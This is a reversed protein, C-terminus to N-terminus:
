KLDDADRTCVQPESIQREEVAVLFTRGDPNTQVANPEILPDGEKWLPPINNNSQSNNPKSNPQPPTNGSESPNVEASVMFPDDDSFNYPSEPVGGGIYVLETRQPRNPDLCSGEFLERYLEFNIERAAVVVDDEANSEPSNVTVTGDIGLESDATIDNNPTLSPRAELGVITDATIEINGGRGQFANATIDSNNLGLITDSNITINGGDGAGGATASILSNDLLSLRDANININGGQGSATAATIGSNNDINIESANISLEGANGTGQNDVRIAGENQISLQNTNLSISGSEGEPFPPLDFLELLSPNTIVSSATIQSSNLLSNDVSGVAKGSVQIFDTANIDINGAAGLGSTTANVRGGGELKLQTTKIAIDGGKGFVTTTGILSRLFSNSSLDLLFSGSLEVSNSFDANINGGNGKQFNQSIILGGEKLFLNRGTLSINGSNGSAMTISSISSSTPTNEIPPTGIVTISDNVDININGSNGSNYATTNILSFDRLNVQEASIIIDSGEGARFSQSLIGPKVVSFDNFSSPSTVGILNVSNSMDININGSPRDGFNSILILSNESLFIDKGRVDIKGGPSGSTDLLSRNNLVIDQFETNESYDFTLSESSVDIEVTGSKISGVKIQGSPNALIGGDLTVKNGILALTQKSFSNLGSQIEQSGVVPSNFGSSINTTDALRLQHGTGKVLIEGSNSGFGLGIPIETTLLPSKSPNTASFSTGNKFEISEATTAIFSGGVDIAANEGFVIGNPNMLFLNATSDVGLIGFIQSINGGTIRSFINEIGTPNAFYVELGEGVNFEQFSHFLNEGRIAGGEIRDRLENISNITSSESGLTRDPVVQAVSPHSFVISFCVGLCSKTLFKLTM